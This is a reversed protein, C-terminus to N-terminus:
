PVNNNKRRKKPPPQAFNKNVLQWSKPTYFTMYGLKRKRQIRASRRRTNDDINYNNNNNNEKNNQAEQQQEHKTNDINTSITINQSSDITLNSFANDSTNLSLISIIFKTIIHSFHIGM